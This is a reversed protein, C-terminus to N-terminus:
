YLRFSVEITAQVDVAQGNLTGPKFKWRTAITSIASEDLGYGLGRIVKFSDVTGDKRVIALLMVLGEVKAKRAEETYLPLPQTVPIPPRVGGGVSYVGDGPGGPGSGVGPGKGTGGYGGTGPPGTIEGISLETGIQAVIEPAPDPVVQYLPEPDDPTPDPFPMPQPKPKPVELKKPASRPSGGGALSPPGAINRLTVLQKNDLVFVQQATAFRVVFILVHFVMTVFMAVRLARKDDENDISAYINYPDIARPGTQYPRLGFFKLFSDSFRVWRERM